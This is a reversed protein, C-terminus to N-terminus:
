QRDSRYLCRDVMSCYDCPVGDASVDTGCGIAQSLSKRPTMMGSPLLTVGIRETDLLDFLQHQGESVPWGVMGPSIRTTIGWGARQSQREFHHCVAAALAEAAASGVGDLALAYQFDSAMRQTIQEELEDGVTCVIVVVRSAPALHQRVLPGRLAGGGALVLREHILGEVELERYLAAPRLLPMAEALAREAVEVLTPSRSRIAAPDAGQAWLVDDVDLALDFDRLIPL